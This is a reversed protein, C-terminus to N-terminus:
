RVFGRRASPSTIYRVLGVVNEVPVTGASTDGGTCWVGHKADSAMSTCYARSDPSIRRNDGMVWLRGDPVKVPGFEFGQCPDGSSNKPDLYPEVLLIGNVTLGTATRCQVTQGGVAVVRKTLDYEDAPHSRHRTWSPPAKFVILEGSQPPRLRYTLEDVAVEDGARLTPEMTQSPEKYMRVGLELVAASVVVAGVALLALLILMNRLITQKRKSKPPGPTRPTPM